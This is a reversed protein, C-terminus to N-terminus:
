PVRGRSPPRTLWYIARWEISVQPKSTYDYVQQQTSMHTFSQDFTFANQSEGISLTVLQGDDAVTVCEELSGNEEEIKNIPRFRCSVRVSQADGAM